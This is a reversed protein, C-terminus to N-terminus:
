KHRRRRILYLAAFTGLFATYHAPEPVATLTFSHLDASVGSGAVAFGVSTIDVSTLLTNVRVETFTTDSSNKAFWTATWNGTGGTTDLVVRLDVNNPSNTFGSWLTNDVANVRQAHPNNTNERVYM